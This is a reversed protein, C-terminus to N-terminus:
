RDLILEITDCLQILRSEHKLAVEGPRLSGIRYPGLVYLLGGLVKRMVLNSSPPRKTTEPVTGRSPM